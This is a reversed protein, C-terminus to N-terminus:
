EDKVEKLVQEQGVEHLAPRVCIPYPPGLVLQSARWVLIVPTMPFVLLILCSGEWSRRAEETKPNQALMKAFGSLVSLSVVFFLLLTSLFAMVKLTEM